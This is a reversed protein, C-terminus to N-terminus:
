IFVYQFTGNTEIEKIECEFADQIVGEQLCARPSGSSIIKRDKMVILNNSIRLAQNLDHLVMIITKGQNKIEEILGYMERRGPFDLYNTPEDMVMYQSDQSLQMALYVRQRLGGSLENVMCNKYETLSTYELAKQVAEMDAKSMKRVFGMYPFRGHEVLGRVSINPSSERFQPMFSLRRARERIPLKLFNCDDLFIEGSTVSSVGNLTQLLTTKGCGNPGIITTIEGKNCRISINELIPTKGISVDVNKFELM